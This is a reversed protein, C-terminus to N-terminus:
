KLLSEIHKILSIKEISNRHGMTAVAQAGVLNGILGIVEMPTQQSACLATISLVADGAGVRDVVQNAFAPVEFFGEQKSFCLSGSKGLTVVVRDCNLKQSVSLAMDKVKGHRNREELAIEHQALTIYDARSYKSITNLGRNGANAQTNVALFQSKDCIVDIVNATMMGHGYDAVMVIDFDPIISGLLDCLEKDQQNNIEDDNIEYVEFLKQSLYKDLFRRKVITPSNKKFVFLKEITNNLNKTVFQEQSNKAGLMAIISVKNSFNAVHNAVALIGGAFKETSLYQAALIPEKASKGILQCYQYEDIIAEGLVLVKLSRTNEIYGTIDEITYRQSFGSLYEGVEKSYAPMYRNILNSSSFTIDDTFIIKGGVSKVAEKEESIKGTIDTDPDRYDPGKAYIDPKLLKITEVADPWQNIAIYDVCDLAAITEARLDESFAPRHPGKNVYRDPTLTVVLVDGMAKAEEFHRIHGIHMLDFVGHCQVITKDTGTSRLSRLENALDELGKIKSIQQM